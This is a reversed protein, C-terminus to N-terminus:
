FPDVEIEYKYEGDLNITRKLKNEKWAVSLTAPISNLLKTKTETPERTLIQDIIEGSTLPRGAREIIFEIKQLWKWNKRYGDNDYTELEKPIATSTQNAEVTWAPEEVELIGLQILIPKMDALEKELSEIQNRIRQYAEEYAKRVLPIQSEPIQMSVSM